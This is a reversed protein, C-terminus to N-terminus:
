PKRYIEHTGVRRLVIYDKEIHFTFRYQRDIRAEWINERNVMKRTHFAPHRIDSALYILRRHLKEQINQPLKEYDHLYPSLRRFKM